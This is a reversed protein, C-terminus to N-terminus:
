FTWPIWYPGWSHGNKSFTTNAAYDVYPDYREYYLTYFVKTDGAQGIIHKIIESGVSVLVAAVTTTGGINTILVGVFAAVTVAAIERIYFSSSGMSVWNAPMIPDIYAAVAGDIRVVGEDKSFVVVSSEGTGLNLITTQNDGSDTTSYTFRYEVGDIVCTEPERSGFPASEPMTTVVTEGTGGEAYAPKPLALATASALGLALFSRRNISTETLRDQLM